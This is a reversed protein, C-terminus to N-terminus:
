RNSEAYDRMIERTEEESKAIGILENRENYVYISM